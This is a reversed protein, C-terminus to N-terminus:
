KYRFEMIDMRALIKRVTSPIVQLMTVDQLMSDIHHLIAHYVTIIIHGMANFASLIAHLVNLEVQQQPPYMIVLQVIAKADKETVGYSCKASEQRLPTLIVHM